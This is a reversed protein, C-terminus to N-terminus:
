KPHPSGTRDRKDTGHQGLFGQEKPRGPAATPSGPTRNRGPSILASLQKAVLKARAPCRSETPLNPHWRASSRAEHRARLTVRPEPGRVFAGVAPMAHVNGRATALLVSHTRTGRSSLGKSVQAQKARPKYRKGQRKSQIRQQALVKYSQTTSGTLRGLLSSLRLMTKLVGSANLFTFNMRLKQGECFLITLATTQQGQQVHM